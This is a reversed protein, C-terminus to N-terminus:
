KSAHCAFCGKAGGEAFDNGMLEVMKPVVKERMFTVETQEEGDYSGKTLPHLGNPMVYKKSAGDEGHCTACSFSKYKEADHAQFLTQMPGYLDSGMFTLKGDYDLAKWAEGKPDPADGCAPLFSFSFLLLSLCLFVYGLPHTSRKSSFM